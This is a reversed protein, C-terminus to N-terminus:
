TTYAKNDHAKVQKLEDNEDKTEILKDRIYSGLRYLAYMTINLPGSTTLIYGIVPLLAMDGFPSALNTQLIMIAIGANQMATELSLAFNDM